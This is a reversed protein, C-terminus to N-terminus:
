GSTRLILRASEAFAGTTVLAAAVISTALLTKM